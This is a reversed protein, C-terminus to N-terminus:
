VMVGIIADIIIVVILAVFVVLPWFLGAALSDIGEYFLHGCERCVNANGSVPSGCNGCFHISAKPQMPQVLFVVYCISNGVGTVIRSVFLVM